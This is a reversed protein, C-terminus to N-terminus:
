SESEWAKDEPTAPDDAKLRGASDRARKRPKAELEVEVAQQSMALLMQEVTVGQPMAFSAM